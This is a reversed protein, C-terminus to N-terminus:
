QFAFTLILTALLALLNKKMLKVEMVLFRELIKYWMYM